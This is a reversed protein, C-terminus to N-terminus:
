SLLDLTQRLWQELGDRNQSFPEDADLLVIALEGNLANLRSGLDGGERAATGSQVFPLLGAETANEAGRGSWLWQFVKEATDAHAGSLLVFGMLEAPYQAQAGTPLPLPRVDLAEGSLGALEASMVVACPLLGQRVYEAANERATFGGQLVALALRNYLEAAQADRLDQKPLGTLRIGQAALESYLFEAWCDCGLFPKEGAATLLADLSDFEAGTLSANVLLVPLRSGLPFFTRGIAPHIQSLAEPISLAQGIEALEGAGELGAARIHSCFLLDPRELTSGTLGDFAAALSDEDPFATAAIQIGTEKRCRAILNEMATPECDTEAYWLTLTEAKSQPKTWSYFFMGACAGLALLLILGRRLWGHKM